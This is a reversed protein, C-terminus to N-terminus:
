SNEESKKSGYKEGLKKMTEEMSNWREQEAKADYKQLHLALKNDQFHTVARVIYMKDNATDDIKTSNVYFDGVAPHHSAMYVNGIKKNTGYEFLTVNLWTM